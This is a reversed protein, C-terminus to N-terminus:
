RKTNAKFSMAEVEKKLEALNSVTFGATRLEKVKAILASKSTFFHIDMGDAEQFKNDAGVMGPIVKNLMKRFVPNTTLDVVIMLSGNIIVPYLKLEPKRPNKVQTLRHRMRYFQPLEAVPALEIAFKRGRGTQFSDHLSDLYQVTKNDLTFKKELASLIATFNPYTKIPLWAYAGFRTFGFRKLAKSDAEDEMGELALFENYIVPYLTVNREAQKEEKVIRTRTTTAVTKADKDSKRTRTRVKDLQEEGRVKNRKTREKDAETIQPAKKNHKKKNQETINTALYVKSASLMEVSGGQALEVKVKSIGPGAYEGSDDDDSSGGRTTTVRLITGLGFETRVFQGILAKPNEKFARALESNSELEAKLPVLGDNYRDEVKLNPVWPTFAIEASEKPMPTPEVDLMYARRTARMESFENGMESILYQYQGIYSHSHVGELGGEGGFSCLDDIKNLNRINELSMTIIPLNAPNLGKYYKPNDLEDFSARKLMKSILRGMKAVELTSDCLIWDLFIRQRTYEGGVSPRFIRSATQDLEGPAWPAEVRIFRTAMQFNHGESIGMENGILISTKPDNQFRNLSEDKNGVDGHFRVARDKLDKPLARYIAEVSRTFRCAIFIKGRMQPKWNTTDSDPSMDSRERGSGVPQESKFIYTKGDFDVIDSAVYEAGKRWENVAFHLRIREVVKQVKPTVYDPAFSDGFIEKAVPLLDEDGFPDTLIRELRQLYPQLAAELADTNDSDSDSDAVEITAGSANVIRKSASEDDDEDDDDESSSRKKLKPDNKAEELTKKLVANYFQQLMHGLDGHEDMSVTIFTEVPMPLMFAWEKRKFSIVTAFESLRRRAKLPTDKFYDVVQKDNVIAIVGKHMRDFEDKTRFIQGNFVASQGVVDSLVNQILTGTAIRGYKVSSMQMINKIGQHISSATNRIRHSEDIIIYDPEFKKCFEVANSVSDVSNGIVLQQKPTNGLFSNGVVVITNPPAEQIMKTLREEGWEAYTETTLPIANWGKFSKHLDEIWNRVLRQPCIVFPRKILGDAYLCAIDSVGITTKGGGPAIDLVAIKPHAKLKALAIAQHPFLKMGGSGDHNKPRSGALNLDNETFQEKSEALADAEAYFKDRVEPQVYKGFVVCMPLVEHVIALFNPIKDEAKDLDVDATQLFTKRPLALIAQVAQLFVQGGFWQYLRGLEGATNVKGSFFREHDSFEINNKVCHWALTTGSAASAQHAAIVFLLRIAGGTDSFADPESLGKPVLSSYITKSTDLRNLEYEMVSEDELTEINLASAAKVYLEHLTPVLKKKLLHNYLISFNEFISSSRIGDVMDEFVENHLTQAKNGHTVLTSSFMEYMAQAVPLRLYSAINLSDPKAFGVLKTAVLRDPDTLSVTIISNLDWNIAQATGKYKSLNEKLEQIKKSYNPSVLDFVAGNSGYQGALLPTGADFSLALAEELLAEYAKANETASEDSTTLFALGGNPTITIGDENVRGPESYLGLEKRKTRLEDSVSPPLVYKPAKYPVVLKGDSTRGEPGIKTKPPRLMAVSWVTAWTNLSVLPIQADKTQTIFECIHKPLNVVLSFRIDPQLLVYEMCVDLSEDPADVQRIKSQVITHNPERLTLVSFYKGLRAVSHNTEVGKFEPLTVAVGIKSLPGGTSFIKHLEALLSWKAGIVHQSNIRTYTSSLSDVGSGFLLNQIRAGTETLAKGLKSAFSAEYNRYGYSTKVLPFAHSANDHARLLPSVNPGRLGSYVIDKGGKYRVSDKIIHSGGTSLNAMFDKVLEYQERTAGYTLQIERTIGIGVEDSNVESAAAYRFMGYRLGTFISNLYASVESLFLFYEVFAAPARLKRRPHFTLSFEIRDADSLQVPILSDLTSAESGAATGSKRAALATFLGRDITAVPKPNIVIKM